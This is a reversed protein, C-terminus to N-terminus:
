RGTWRGDEWGHFLQCEWRSGRGWRDDLRIVVVVVIGAVVVGRLARSRRVYAYVRRAAMGGNRPLGEVMDDIEGEVRGGGVGDWSGKELGRITEAVDNVDFLDAIADDVRDGFFSDRLVM